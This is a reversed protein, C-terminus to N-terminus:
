QQQRKKQQGEKERGAVMFAKVILVAIDLVPKPIVAIVKNKIKINGIGCRFVIEIEIHAVGIIIRVAVNINKELCFEGISFHSIIRNFKGQRILISTPISFALAIHVIATQNEPFIYPKRKCSFIVHLHHLCHAHFLQGSDQICADPNFLRFRFSNM